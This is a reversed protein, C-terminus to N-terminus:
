AAHSAEKIGELGKQLRPWEVGAWGALDKRTFFGRELGDVLWMFAMSYRDNFRGLRPLPMAGGLGSIMVQGDLMRERFECEAQAAAVLAILRQAMDRVLARYDGAKERCIRQSAAAVAAKYRQEQLEIARKTIRIEDTLQGAKRRLADIDAAAIKGHKLLAEAATDLPDVAASRAASMKRNLADRQRELDTAQLKLANLKALEPAVEPTDDIRM